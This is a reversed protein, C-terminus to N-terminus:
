ITKVVGLSMLRANTYAHFMQENRKHNNVKHVKKVEKFTVLDEENKDKDIYLVSGVEEKRTELVLAYHNSSTDM